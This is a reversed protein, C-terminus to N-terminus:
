KKSILHKGIYLHHLGCRKFTSIADDPTGVIPEGHINFSTNMLAGIGTIKEFEKILSYYSPNENKYVIQPRATRDFPHLGAPIHEKAIDTSDFGVAMFRADINKNNVMYDKERDSLISPAFPMWFDRMKVLKNIHHIVDPRRPDALISRNGLARAGFEMKGDGFRAIIDGKALLNAVFNDSVTKVSFDSDINKKISEQIKSDSFSPGFYASKPVELKFNEGMSDLYSIYAAGISISEDGPGPPIFLTDLNTLESILKNAKINQAVGGSMIINKIGTKTLGNSIWETLLNECKKQIGYSIADFRQGELKDKFYFFHDKIKNKYKFGLGDVQITDDYVKFAKLGYKDSNYAALGMIKYEHDAPRMGLLLTAYRYMRGINCNSSRSIEKLREGPKGISVTGNANDGGGDMTFVLVDESKVPSLMYGYYAHCEHHDYVYIKESPINLFESILKKRAELMGEFDEEHKILSKDYPFNQDIRHQMIDLYKPKKGEYLRPYWYEKQEKWYDEISFTSNRLTYFYSPPISASSIAVKDIDSYSVNSTELVMEISKEPFGYHHKKRSLREEAIACELKGDIILAASANHGDHIGLIIMNNNKKISKKGSL